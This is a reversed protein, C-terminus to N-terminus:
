VGRRRWVARGYFISEEEENECTVKDRPSVLYWDSSSKREVADRLCHRNMALVTLAYANAQGRFSVFDAACVTACPQPDAQELLPAATQQPSPTGQSM